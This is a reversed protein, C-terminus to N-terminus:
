DTLRASRAHDNVHRGLKDRRMGLARKVLPVSSLQLASATQM